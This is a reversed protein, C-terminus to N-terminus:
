SIGGGAGVVSEEMGFFINTLMTSQTNAGTLRDVINAMGTSADNISKVRLKEYDLLPMYAAAEQALLKIRTIQSNAM